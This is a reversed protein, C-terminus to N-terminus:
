GSDGGVGTVFVWIISDCPNFLVYTVAPLEFQSWYHPLVSGIENAYLALLIRRQM